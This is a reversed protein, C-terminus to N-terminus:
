NETPPLYVVKGSDDYCRPCLPMDEDSKFRYGFPPNPISISEKVNLKELLARNEEQLRRKEDQFAMLQEKFDLLSDYATNLQEKIETTDPKPSKVLERAQKIAGLAASVGQAVTV